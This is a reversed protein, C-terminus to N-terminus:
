DSKGIYSAAQGVTKYDAAKQYKLPNLIRWCDILIPKNPNANQPLKLNQFDKWPTAIIIVKARYLSDSLNKALTVGKTLYLKANAMAKPDWASVKIGKRSLYNALKVGASEEAVDTDPKYALGLISVKGKTIKAIDNAMKRIFRENVIDTAESIPASIKVQNAFHSFARNDRPFCPGGYPLAGNLYKSGIRADKGLVETVLAVDGGKLKECIQALTNAFSIKTTIYSNLAIKAIEANVFNMRFIQPNNICFKLYFNELIKGSKKDSEGILVLDPNLLNDIVSGLAIFEPNYCIGFDRNLRKGSAEELAPIIETEMSKPMVTSTVVVLHFEDKKKLVKGIKRVASVVYGNSFSGSINSPTPVIIFTINSKSIAEEYSSTAKIRQRNKSILHTLGPEDVPSKGQNLIEVVHSNVDLGIVNFGRSACTALFPSGLKGLGIVSITQM